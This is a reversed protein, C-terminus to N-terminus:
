PSAVSEESRPRHEGVMNDGTFSSCEQPLAIHLVPFEVITRGKINERLSLSKDLRHFQHRAAVPQVEENGSGSERDEEDEGEVDARPQDPAMARPPQHLFVELQDLGAEAYPLLLHRTAGWPCKNQLFRDLVPGLVEQEPLMKETLVQGSHGFHWEVKWAIWQPRGGQAGGRGGFPRRRWSNGATAAGGKVVSTNNRAVDLAAPALILRIQRDAAARALSVRQMHRKQQHLRLDTCRMRFSRDARDVANDVEELFGFDRHIVHDSFERLPAVFEARPRKGTCSHKVKHDAVCAASCTRRDCAPCRYKV